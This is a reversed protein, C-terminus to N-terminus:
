DGRATDKLVDHLTEFRMKLREESFQREKSYESMTREFLSKLDSIARELQETAKTRAEMARNNAELAMTNAALSATVAESTRLMDLADSKCEEYSKLLSQYTSLLQRFLFVIAFGFLLSVLWGGGETSILRRIQETIIDQM